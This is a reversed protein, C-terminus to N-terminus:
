TNPGGRRWTWLAAAINCAEFLGWCSVAANVVGLAVYFAGGRRIAVIAQIGAFLAALVMVVIVAYGIRRLTRHPFKM